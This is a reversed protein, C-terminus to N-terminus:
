KAPRARGARGPRAPARVANLTDFRLGSARGNTTTPRVDLRQRVASFPPTTESSDSAPKASEKVIIRSDAGSTGLTRDVVLPSTRAQPRCSYGLSLVGFDLGTSRASAVLM